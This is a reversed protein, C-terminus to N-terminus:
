LGAAAKPPGNRYSRKTHQAGWITTKLTFYHNRAQFYHSITTGQKSITHILPEKSPRFTTYIYVHITYTYLVYILVYLM